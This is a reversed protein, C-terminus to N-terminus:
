SEALSVWWRALASLVRRLSAIFRRWASPAPLVSVVVEAPRSRRGGEAEVVLRFRYRGPALGADVVLLPSATVQSTDFRPRV